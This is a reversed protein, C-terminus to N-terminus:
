SSAIHPLRVATARRDTAQGARRPALPRSPSELLFYKLVFRGDHSQLPAGCALCETQRNTKITEVWIHLVQYRAGCDQCNVQM